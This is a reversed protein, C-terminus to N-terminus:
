AFDRVPSSCHASNVWFEVLRKLRLVLVPHVKINFLAM